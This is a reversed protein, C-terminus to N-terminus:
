LKGRLIGRQADAILSEYTEPKLSASADRRNDANPPLVVGAPLPRRTTGPVGSQREQVTTTSQKKTPEDQIETIINILREKIDVAKAHKIQIINPEERAIIPKDIYKIIEVIRNVNDASDTVLISNTREFTQIQAGTRIFGQIITQAETIDINQLEIMQSVFRGDETIKKIEGTQPDPMQTFIGYKRIEASPIVRLFTDDDKILTIGNFNLVNEIAALYMEDTLSDVSVVTGDALTQKKPTTRLTINVNPVNPAKIITRETRLAYEMLVLDVSAEQFNLGNRSDDYPISPLGGASTPQTVAQPANGPTPRSPVPRATPTQPAPRVAAAPQTPRGQQQSFVPLVGISLALLIVSFKLFANINKKM